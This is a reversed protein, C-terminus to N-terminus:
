KLLDISTLEKILATPTQIKTSQVTFVKLKNTFSLICYIRGESDM